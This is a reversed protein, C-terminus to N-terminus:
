PVCGMVSGTVSYLGSMCETIRFTVKLSLATVIWKGLEDYERSYLVGIKLSFNYEIEKFRTPFNNQSIQM